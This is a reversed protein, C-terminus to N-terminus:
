ILSPPGRAPLPPRVVVLHHSAIFVRGALLPLGFQEPLLSVADPAPSGAISVAFDCISDPASPDPENSDSGTLTWKGTAPDFVAMEAGPVASCIQVVLKGTDSSRQLMYGTPVLGQVTM